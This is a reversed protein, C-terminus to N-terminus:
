EELDHWSPALPEAQDLLSAAHLADRGFKTRVEDLARDLDEREAVTGTHMGDGHGVGRLPLELQVQDPTGVHSVSIGLLTVTDGEGIVSRLLETAVGYVVATAQTPAGLTRARTHSTMDPYRVKLTVTRGWQETKRMRGAVRDALRLLIRDAEDLSDVGRGLASQSGVSHNRRGPDVDRPDINWGLSHLHQGIASGVLASLAEKPLAALEGVTTIGREALKATTVPGVGWLRQVPLPHLFDLEDDPEVVLLGDPKAMASAVKALFKTRAVGVSVPLDVVVRVRRRLMSAIEPAPGFLRRAGRVDLFAEDPSIPEVVPTFEEFVAM